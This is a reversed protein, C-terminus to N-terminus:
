ILGWTADGWIQASSLPGILCFCCATSPLRVLGGSTLMAPSPHVQLCPAAYQKKTIGVVSKKEAPFDATMKRQRESFTFMFIHEEDPLNSGSPGKIHRDTVIHRGCRDSALPLKPSLLLLSATLFQDTFIFCDFHWVAFCRM